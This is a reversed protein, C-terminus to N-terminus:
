DPKETTEEKEEKIDLRKIEEVTLGTFEAVQELGMGSRVLLATIEVAKERKGLEISNKQMNEIIEYSPVYKISEALKEMLGMASFSVFSTTSIILHDRVPTNVIRGVQIMRDTTDLDEESPELDGSPHNHCLMISTARKQLAFSFVDMPATLVADVSGLGIQEIFLLRLSGSLGIM